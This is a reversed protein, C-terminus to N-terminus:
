LPNVAVLGAFRRSIGKFVVLKRGYVVVGFLLPTLIAGSLLTNGFFPIGNAYCLMLGQWTKAYFSGDGMAWVAFNTVLFFFVAGGFGVVASGFVLRSDKLQYKRLWLGSASITLFAGWTVFAITTNGLLADSIALSALTMGMAIYRQLFAAALLSTATLLELNPAMMMQHNYMRWLVNVGVLGTATLLEMLIWKNKCFYDM